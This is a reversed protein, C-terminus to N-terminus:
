RLEVHIHDDHRVARCGQFRIKSSTLGLRQKLHPEIFLKNCSPHQSLLHLLKRTRETDFAYRTKNGQPTIRSLMNYQWYGKALCTQTTNVEHPLPAEAIGYGYWSPSGTIPKGSQPHVYLFAVDVKKGDYHSLHPLLPFRNFFPFGADLYCVVSGPYATNLQTSSTLLLQKLSPRVYHRNMLCTLLNLPRLTQSSVPLPVRGTLPAILPIIGLTAIAYITTFYLIFTTKTPIKTSVLRYIFKRTFWALLYMVGGIQTLATLLIFVVVHLFILGAKKMNM